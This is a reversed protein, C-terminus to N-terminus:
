KDELLSAPDFYMPDKTLTAPPPVLTCSVEQVKIPQWCPRIDEMSAAQSLRMRFISGDEKKYVWLGQYAFAPGCPKGDVLSQMWNLKLLKPISSNDM